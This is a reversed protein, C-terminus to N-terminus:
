DFVPGYKGWWDDPRFFRYNRNLGAIANMDNEDLQIANAQLNVRLHSESSSKCVVSTNRHLAWALVVQAPTTEHKQAITALTPEELLSPEGSEKYGPTGLPSYAQVEIGHHQCYKILNTQSLYPHLEVQNVAPKIAPCHALLEHVLAVPTNSLGIYKVLGKEVVDQMGQWTEWLSVTPDIAKGDRSDDIDENTYGRVTPDLDVFDFAIPWHVLYLDLCDVRLDALTKKLALEVHQRRHFPSPLKSVLFLEERTTSKEQNIVQHLADGIEMENFYVPASDVRRYGTEIAKPIIHPIDKKDLMYTGLGIKPMATAIAACSSSSSAAMLVMRSSLMLLLLSLAGILKTPILLCCWRRYSAM